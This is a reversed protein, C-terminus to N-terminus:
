YGFKVWLDTKRVMGTEKCSDFWRTTTSVAVQLSPQTPVIDKKEDQHLCLYKESAWFLSAVLQIIYTSETHYKSPSRTVNGSTASVTVVTGAM